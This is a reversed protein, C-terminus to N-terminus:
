RYLGHEEIYRLVAPDIEGLLKKGHALEGRLATATVRVPPLDVRGKRVKEAREPGLREAILALARPESEACSDDDRHVVVPQVRDVLEGAARWTALGALNDSGLILYIECDDREGIAAPLARVTDITFSRGGRDLEISSAEFAPEGAIALELMALRHRGEALRQGIKHPPEAAPVFVVRDLGFAARAARTAHLHGSHVPDFSGGFLGIRRASM